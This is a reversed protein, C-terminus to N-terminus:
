GGIRPRSGIRTLGIDARDAASRGAQQGEYSSRRGKAVYYSGRSPGTDYTYEHPGGDIHEHRNAEQVPKICYLARHKKNPKGAATKPWGPDDEPQLKWCKYTTPTPRRALGHDYMWEMINAMKDVILAKGDPSEQYIAEDLERFRQGIRTAFGEMHASIWTFKGVMGDDWSSQKADGYRVRWDDQAFKQSQIMLSLYLLKAQEIDSKYGVLKIWQSEKLGRNGERYLNSNKRNSLLFYKVSRANLVVILLEQKAQAHHAYTSFMYDELVPEEVPRGKAEQQARRVRAEDIAYRVMLTHAGEFFAAAENENDTGEAKALLASVKRLLDAEDM